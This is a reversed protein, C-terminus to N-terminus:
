ISWNMLIVWFCGRWNKEHDDVILDYIMGLELPLLINNCQQFTLNFLSKYVTLLRHFRVLWNAVSFLHFRVLSQDFLVFLPLLLYQNSFLRYRQHTHNLHSDDVSAPTVSTRSLQGRSRRTVTDSPKFHNCIEDDFYHDKPWAFKRFLQFALNIAVSQIKIKPVMPHGIALKAM